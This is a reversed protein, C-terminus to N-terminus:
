PFLPRNCEQANYKNGMKLATQPLREIQRNLRYFYVRRFFRWIVGPRHLRSLVVCNILRKSKPM